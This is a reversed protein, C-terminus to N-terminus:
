VNEYEDDFLSDMNELNIPASSKLYLDNIYKMADAYTTPIAIIEPESVVNSVDVNYVDCDDDVAENLLGNIDNNHGDNIDNENKNLIMKMANMKIPPVFNLHLDHAAVKHVFKEKRGSILISSSLSLTNLKQSAMELDVDGNKHKCDDGFKSNIDDPHEPVYLKLYLDDETLIPIKKIERTERVTENHPADSINSIASFEVDSVNANDDEYENFDLDMMTPQVPTSCRLYIENAYRLADKRSTPLLVIEQGFGLRRDNSLLCQIQHQLTDTTAETQEQCPNLQISVDEVITDMVCQPVNSVIEIWVKDDVAKIKNQKIKRVIKFSVFVCVMFILIISCWINSLMFTLIVSGAYAIGGMVFPQVNHLIFQKIKPPMGALSFLLFSGVKMVLRGFYKGISSILNIQSAIVSTSNSVNQDVPLEVEYSEIIASETLSFLNICVCM